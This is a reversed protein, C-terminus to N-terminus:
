GKPKLFSCGTCGDNIVMACSHTNKATACKYHKSTIAPTAKNVLTPLIGKIIHKARVLVDLDRAAQIAEHPDQLDGQNIQERLHDIVRDLKEM